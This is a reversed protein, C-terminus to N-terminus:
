CQIGLHHAKSLRYSGKYPPCNKPIKRNSKQPTTSIGPSFFIEIVKSSCRDKCSTFGNWGHHPSHPSKVSGSFIPLIIQYDLNHGRGTQSDFLGIELPYPRPGGQVLKELFIRLDRCIWSKLSQFTYTSFLGGNVFQIPFGVLLPILKHKQPM